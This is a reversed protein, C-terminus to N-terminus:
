FQGPSCSWLQFSRTRLLSKKASTKTQPHKEGEKVVAGRNARRKDREEREGRRRRTRRGDRQESSRRLALQSEQKSTAAM